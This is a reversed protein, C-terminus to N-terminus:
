ARKNLLDTLAEVVRDIEDATMDSFLPLRLLRGAVSETVPLARGQAFQKGYPSTHLPLYHFVAGIGRDRLGGMVRNREAESSLLVYFLHHNSRAYSPITPLTLLGREALPALREMYAHHIVGRAENLRPMKDLQVGLMAALIDSPVYSSGMDVWTYKDVTGQAFARRNTGKERIIEARDALPTERTVIAGGEGCTVNKTGHFSFCGIRGCTGLPEDRYWAGIAQAADEVIDIGTPAALARIADMDCAVGAYHVPVIVRTRPTIMARVSAPDINLTTPDIDAFVPTAGRVLAANATSSFTFSPCIVEDGPGVDLCMLAMEMAHTCSTSLLAHPVGCLAALKKEVRRTIEGGGTLALARIAESVAAIEEDGVSARHNPIAAAKSM